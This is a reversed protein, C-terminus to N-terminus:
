AKGGKLSKLVPKAKPKDLTIVLHGDVNEVDVDGDYGDIELSKANLVMRSFEHWPSGTKLNFKM